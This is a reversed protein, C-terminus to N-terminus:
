SSGEGICITAFFVKEVGYKKLVEAAADVTSGTTYVDDTLLVRKWPLHGDEGLYAENVAFAHRLNSRRQRDSLEKQDKTACIKKLADRCIEYGGMRGMYKSLIVAQNYGRKKQKAPYMPIPILVEPDWRVLERELKEVMLQAYYELYERKNQYKIRHISEKVAGQYLLLGRGQEFRHAHELCDTCYETEEEELPKGCRFCVPEKAFKMERYCAKCFGESIGGCLPCRSPYLLKIAM